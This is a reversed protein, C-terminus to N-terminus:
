RHGANEPFKYREPEGEIGNEERWQRRHVESVGPGRYVSGYLGSAWESGPGENSKRTARRRYWKGYALLYYLRFCLFAFRDRELDPPYQAGLDVAAAIGSMVAVEHANILTWAAAFRTHRRGQLLWMWPVVFAYHSWSHCLQHWWDKRIIKDPDIDDITWLHGDREKNLYITQFVHRDFPVTPPFQSQYNTCDFCMELKSRDQPYMKIYYMPKFNKAAWENRQTQPHGSLTSVARQPTYFNEYHKLMYSSDHHTVTIDNSFKASGLIRSERFSATPTLIRKATDADDYHEEKEQADADYNHEDDYPVHASNPNHADPMPSRKILRVTVGTKDRKVVQTIETSLRVNVGRKILDQRWREYFESFKPFVVMPPLNSAISHKDPPYWMGYTPSTCLRELIISPVNPTENGTGLFLAIMPMAVTNTFEESFMFMKFLVKIPILAFFLEFWRVIKLMTNFRRIEKQHRALLETPFVNTWFIDDKGFSVHLNVPDAHHGQRAFMTMTHHFIYSGGQVGQNLWAAGHREKDIDISFAQGGCYDVADILTVDFKDPHESLHHACSMGEAAGAGVVLVRKKKGDKNNGGAM